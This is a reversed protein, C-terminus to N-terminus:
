EFNIVIDGGLVNAYFTSSDDIDTSVFVETNRDVQNIPFKM